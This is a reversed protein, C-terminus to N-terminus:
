YDEGGRQPPDDNYLTDADSANSRANASNLGHINGGEYYYNNAIEQEKATLSNSPPM